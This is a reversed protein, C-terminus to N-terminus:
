AWPLRTPARRSSGYSVREDRFVIAEHAPDRATAEDLMQGLTLARGLGRSM